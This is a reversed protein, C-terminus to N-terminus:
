NCPLLIPFTGPLLWQQYVSLPNWTSEAIFHYGAQLLVSDVIFDDITVLDRKRFPNARPFDGSRGLLVCNKSHLREKFLSAQGQLM